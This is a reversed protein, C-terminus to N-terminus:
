ASEKAPMGKSLQLYQIASRLVTPDDGALGIMQNCKSCLLGRVQRSADHAHDVCLTRTKGLRKVTEPQHCIACKNKQIAVMSEYDSGSIGYSSKIKWQKTTATRTESNHRCYCSSCMGQGAHQRDPHGCTTKRGNLVTDRPHDNLTGARKARMYCNACLGRAKYRTETHGCTAIAM